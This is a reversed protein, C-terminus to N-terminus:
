KLRGGAMAAIGAVLVVVAEAARDLLAAAAAEAAAVPTLVPALAAVLWESLGLGNPTLAALKIILSGAGILVADGFGIPQGILAFALWLRLAAVLLDLGRLPAWLWAYRVPRRLMRRAIPGTALALLLLMVLLVSWGIPGPAILLAAAALGLVVVALALVIGLIVLSQRLPLAHRLKLYASRGVLGARPLPLYNLLASVTVLAIMRGVRVTPSADFSLTIAWFLLGTLLLNLLVGLALLAFMAPSAHALVSWHVGRLAFAAAAALMVIGVCLGVVRM